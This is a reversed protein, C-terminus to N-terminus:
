TMDHIVEAETMLEGDGTMHCTSNLWAMDHVVDFYTM